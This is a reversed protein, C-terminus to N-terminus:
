RRNHAVFRLRDGVIRRKCFQKCGILRVPCISWDIRLHELTVRFTALLNKLLEAAATDAGGRVVVVGRHNELM